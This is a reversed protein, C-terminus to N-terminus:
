QLIQQHTIVILFTYLLSLSRMHVERAALRSSSMVLSGGPLGMLVNTCFRFMKLDVTLFSM